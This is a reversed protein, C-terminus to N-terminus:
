IESEFQFSCVCLDCIGLLDAVDLGDLIGLVQEGVLLLFADGSEGRAAEKREDGKLRKTLRKVGPPGGRAVLVDLFGYLIGEYGDLGGQSSDVLYSFKSLITLIEISLTMSPNRRLIGDFTLTLSHSSSSPSTTTPYDEQLVMDLTTSAPLLFSFLAIKHHNWEPDLENEILWTEHSQGHHNSVFRPREEREKVM